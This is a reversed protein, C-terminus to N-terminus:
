ASARARTRQSERGSRRPRALRDAATPLVPSRPDANAALLADVEAAYGWEDVDHVAVSLLMRQQTDDRIGQHAVLSLEADGVRLGVSLAPGTSPVRSTEVAGLLRGYFALLRDLDATLLVPQITVSM